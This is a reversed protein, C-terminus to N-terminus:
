SQTPTGVRILMMTSIPLYLLGFSFFVASLAGLAGICFCKWRLTYEMSEVTLGSFPALASLGAYAMWSIFFPKHFQQLICYSLKLDVPYYM